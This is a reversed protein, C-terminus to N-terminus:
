LLLATCCDRAVPAKSSTLVINDEGLWACELIRQSFNQATTRPLKQRLGDLGLTGIEEAPMRYSEVFREGVCHARPSAENSGIRALRLM